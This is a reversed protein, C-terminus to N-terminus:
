LLPGTLGVTDMLGQKYFLAHHHGLTVKKGAGGSNGVCGTGMGKREEYQRDIESCHPKRKNTKISIICYIHKTQKARSGRAWGRTETGKRKFSIVSQLEREKSLPNRKIFLGSGM